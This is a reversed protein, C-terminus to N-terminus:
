DEGNPVEEVRVIKDGEPSVLGTDIQEVKPKPEPVVHTNKYHLHIDRENDTDFGCVACRFRSRGHWTFTTWAQEVQPPSYPTKKPATKKPSTQRKKRAM